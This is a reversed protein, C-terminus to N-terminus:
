SEKVAGDWFKKTTEGIIDKNVLYTLDLTSKLIQQCGKCEECDFMELCKLIRTIRLFNHNNPTVWKELTEAYFQMFRKYSKIINDIVVPDTKVLEADYESLFPSHPQCRSPETLPFLWQIVDHSYELSDNDWSLIEDLTRGEDDTGGKLFEILKSM